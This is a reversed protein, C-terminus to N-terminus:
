VNGRTIKLNQSLMRSNVYQSFYIFIEVKSGKDRKKLIPVNNKTTKYKTNLKGEMKRRKEKAIFTPKQTNSQPILQILNAKSVQKSAKPPFPVVPHELILWRKKLRKPKQHLM